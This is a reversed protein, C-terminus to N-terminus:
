MRTKPDQASVKYALYPLMRGPISASPRAGRDVAGMARYFGAANPDADIEIVRVDQSAAHAVMHAWLARGIGARMHAPDIFMFGIEAQGDGLMALEYFGLVPGGDPCQAVFTHGQAILEPTVTLEAAFRATMEPPYGWAAKSRRALATLADADPAAAARIRVAAPAGDSNTTTGSTTTMPPAIPM